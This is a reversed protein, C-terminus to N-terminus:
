ERREDFPYTMIPRIGRGAYEMTRFLYRLFSGSYRYRRICLEVLMRIESEYGRWRSLFFDRDIWDDITFGLLKMLELRASENGSQALRVLTISIIDRIRLDTPDQPSIFVYLKAHYKELVAKVERYNRYRICRTKRRPTWRRQFKRELALTVRDWDVAGFDTRVNKLIFRYSSPARRSIWSSDFSEPLETSLLDNITQMTADFDM